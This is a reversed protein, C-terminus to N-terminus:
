VYAIWRGASVILIWLLILAGGLLRGSPGDWALASEALRRHFLGFLAAIVIVMLMKARFLNNMLERDPEGVILVTGSLVLLLLAWWFWGGYRTAIRQMALHSGTVRLLRASTMVVAGSLAAIAFIHVTQILPTIWSHAGILTSAPTAALATSFSKIM